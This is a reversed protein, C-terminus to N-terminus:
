LVLSSFSVKIEHDESGSILFDGHLILTNVSGEHRRLPQIPLMNELDWVQLLKIIM